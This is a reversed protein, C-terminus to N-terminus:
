NKAEETLEKLSQNFGCVQQVKATYDAYEGPTLMKKLCEEASFAGYSDQLEVANLNPFVTCEAALKGIYQSYDTESMYQNTGPIQIRRACEKRLQEDEESTICKIEMPVPKGEEDVFRNSVVYKVNEVKKANQALFATLSM